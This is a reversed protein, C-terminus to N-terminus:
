NSRFLKGVFNQLMNQLRYRNLVHDRALSHMKLGRSLNKMDDFGQSAWSGGGLGGGGQGRRGFLLCPWCFLKGLRESACLWDHVCYWGTRFNRRKSRDLQAFSLGDPLPRGRDLIQRQEAAARTLFPVALLSTVTDAM